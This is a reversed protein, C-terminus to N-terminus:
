KRKKTRTHTVHQKKPELWGKSKAHSVLMTWNDRIEADNFELRFRQTFPGSERYDGCVWFVSLYARQTQLALCYAKIQVLWSWFDPDLPRNSSRWTAKFEEVAWEREFVGDPTMHIGDLTFEGPRVVGPMTPRVRALAHTVVEEWAWGMSTHAGMRLKEAPTLQDFKQRQGVNIISNDIDRIIDSVHVGSSRKPAPESTGSPFALVMEKFEDSTVDTIRM